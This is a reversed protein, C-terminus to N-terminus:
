AFMAKGLVLGGFFALVAGCTSVLMYAVAEVLQGREMLMYTDYAFASFTTFGGMMGVGFLLYVERGRPLMGVVYAVILGLLLSGVLNVALTGFPIARGVMGTVWGHVLYRLASGVAGGLAVILFNM